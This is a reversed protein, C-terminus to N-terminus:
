KYMGWKKEYTRIMDEIIAHSEELSYHETDSLSELYDRLMELLGPEKLIMYIQERRQNYFLLAAGAQSLYLHMNLPLQALSGKLIFSDVKDLTIMRKLLMIRDEKTFRINLFVPIELNIGTELFYELGAVTMYSRNDGPKRCEYANEYGMLMQQMATIRMPEDVYDPVMDPTLLPMICPDAQISRATQSFVIASLQDFEQFGDTIVRIFPASFALCEEFKKKMMSVASPMCLLLGREEEQHYLLVHSSTLIMNPLLNLNHFHSEANDYYYYSRYDLMSSQLTMMRKLSSLNEASKEISNKDNNMCIIHEIKAKSFIGARAALFDFLFSDEPQLILCIHASDKKGEELLIRSITQNLAKRGEIAHCDQFDQRDQQQTQILLWQGADEAFEPFHLLFDEVSRRRYYTVRGIREIAYEAKLEQVEKPSLQMCIGMQEVMDELPPLEKGKVYRYMQAPETKCFRSIDAATVDREEMWRSLRESFGSM